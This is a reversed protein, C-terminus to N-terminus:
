AYIDILTGKKVEAPNNQEISPPTSKAEKLKNLYNQADQRMLQKNQEVYKSIPNTSGYINMESM